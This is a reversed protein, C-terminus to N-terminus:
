HMCVTDEKFGVSNGTNSVKINNEEKLLVMFHPLQALRSHRTQDQFKLMYMYFIWM